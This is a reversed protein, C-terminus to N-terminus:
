HRPHDAKGPKSQRAKELEQLRRETARWGENYATVSSAIATLRRVSEVYTVAEGPTPNHQGHAVNNRLDLLELVATPFSENIHGSKALEPLWYTANRVDAETLITKVMTTLQASLDEWAKIVVFSPNSTALEALQVLGARELDVGQLAQETSTIERLAQDTVPNDTAAADLSAQEVAEQAQAVARSVSQEAGALKQGFNVKQGLGEYSIIRGLLDVLPRRFILLAVVVTLPIALSGVVSAIFGLSNM